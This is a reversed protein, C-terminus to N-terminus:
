TINSYLESIVEELKMGRSAKFLYVDNTKIDSLIINVLEKKNDFCLCKKIGNQSAGECYDRAFKGYAYLVDAYEAAKEGCSIHAEHSYSGLELMDGMVAIKRGGKILGFAELSARVSDPSANYCDEVVTINNLKVIKQRMGSPVYECFADAIDSSSVGAYIGVAFACVANYVNHKGLTPLTILQRKDSYVIDFVTQADSYKINVARYDCDENNIGYLIVPNTMSKSQGYLLEDDANLVLPSAGTMGDLIETKAKLINHKSGLKEIHSVGINTIVAIDPMCCQSLESIEGLGSMGMELVAAEYTSDLEFVMRPLGIDNNYNGITKLTKFKKSLVCWVMEKTTTKGVSGTLGVTLLEFKRKYYNALKLQARRTDDVYIINRSDKVPKHCIAAAAGKSFAESVFDHGDFREGEIAIFLCDEECLRTDTCISKFEKNSKLASGFLKAVESITM